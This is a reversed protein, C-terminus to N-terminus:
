VDDSRGAHCLAVPCPAVDQITLRPPPMVPGRLAPPCAAGSSNLDTSARCSKQRWRRRRLRPRRARRTFSRNRRSPGHPLLPLGSLERRVNVGTRARRPKGQILRRGNVGLVRRVRLWRPLCVGFSAAALTGREPALQR